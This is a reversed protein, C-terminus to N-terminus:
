GIGSRRPFRGAAEASRLHHHLPAYNWPLGLAEVLRKLRGLFTESLGPVLPQYSPDCFYVRCGLPRADRATCLGKADQWPCSAGADIPRSPPPAETLLLSAEPASLFLTHGFEEFRCCRGSLQCVPALRAIEADLEGYLAHLPTRFRAADVETPDAEDHVIM